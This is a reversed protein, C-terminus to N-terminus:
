FQWSWSIHHTYFSWILSQMWICCRHKNQVISLPSLPSGQSCQRGSCVHRGNRPVALEGEWLCGWFAETQEECCQAPNQKRKAFGKGAPHFHAKSWSSPTCGWCHTLLYWLLERLVSSGKASSYNSPLQFAVAESWTWKLVPNPENTKAWIVCHECPTLCYNMRTLRCYILLPCFINIRHSIHAYQWENFVMM